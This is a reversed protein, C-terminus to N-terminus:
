ITPFRASEVRIFYEFTTVLLRTRTCQDLHSLYVFFLLVLIFLGLFLSPLCRPLPRRQRPRIRRIPPRVEEEAPADLQILPREYVVRQPVEIVTEIYLVKCDDSIFSNTTSKPPFPEPPTSSNNNNINISGDFSVHRRQSYKRLTERYMKLQSRCHRHIMASFSDHQEPILQEYTELCNQLVHLQDSVSHLKEDIMEELSLIEDILNLTSELQCQEAAIKEMACPLDREIQHLYEDLKEASSNHQPHHPFHDHFHEQARRLDNEASHFKERDDRCHQVLREKLERLSLQDEASHIACPSTLQAFDQEFRLKLRIIEQSLHLLHRARTRDEEVQEQM